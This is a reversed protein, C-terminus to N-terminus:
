TEGVRERAYRRELARWQDELKLVEDWTDLRFWCQQQLGIANAQQEVAYAQAALAAAERLYPLAPQYEGVYVRAAGASRLAEIREHADELGAAQCLALRQEAVELHERLRSAGDLVNALAGLAQSLDLPSDLQRAMDVAAQAYREAAEWDPPEQIRWADASLAVLMRVTELHPPQSQLRERAGALGARAQQGAEGLQQLTELGVSWKLETVVQLIKRQLRVADYPDLSRTQRLALAQQYAEIAGSGDRLLRRVDALEELLIPHVEGAVEPEVLDLAGRLSRLADDYAFVTLAQRAARRAYEIARVRQGALTFHHALLGYLGDLRDPYLAEIAEAVRRHFARRRKVLITEYVAEQTMPNRFAYEVEPVRAAERIMDLQMLAGLRQDLGSAAEDVAELVRHYFSRGIVSAVQLTGRTAEELRDLRAALLLQVNDPIAFDAGEDTARWVRRTEGAVSRTEVFVLGREILARVVEEIFFPNGGAKELINARLRDPLEPNLLLRNLLEASDTPSLPHLGIETYRHHYDDGAQVKLQWAPARREARLAFILVLPISATLPLLQRLLEISAADCWHTDDFALVTPATSFDALWWARMTEFLERKFTEGELALDGAAGELGFLAGLVQLARPRQEAPLRDALAALKERAAEPPSNYPLGYVRRILRQILAYAQSSEYSLSGVEHWPHQAGGSANFMLRTESILRSKGLGAEGLVCVIRGVGRQLDAMVDRLAQLEFDRGVMEAQLGEIGRSRAAFAKRRLVRYARVPESKGKVPLSGLAEFEFLGTILKYTDHAIQITGPAATQEMRAALNIADGLASYELRLDSGVAGVVVLGTNIGVRVTFDLGWKQAVQARYAEMGDIIELGTLAARQPDDEHAIPAGFFALIADGMLRALTGEYKYVPKIMHEFAGNIIEGYDEPDLQEAAATSGKVDCFLMTVVRREGVMEGRARAVELKQMLEPPIYQQLQPALAPTATPRTEGGATSPARAPVPMAAREIPAAAESPPILLAQGLQQGCQDCFVSNDPLVARCRPCALAFHTGCYRCFNAQPRNARGCNPCDM